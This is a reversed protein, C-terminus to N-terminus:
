QNLERRPSKKKTNKNRRNKSQLPTTNTHARALRKQHTRRTTHGKAFPANAMLVIGTTDLKMFRTPDLKEFGFREFDGAYLANVLAIAKPSYRDIYSKRNRQVDATDFRIKDSGRYHRRPRHSHPFAFRDFLTTLDRGLEEFRLVHDVNKKPERKNGVGQEDTRYVFYHQPILHINHKTIADNTIDYREVIDCFMHFLEKARAVGDTKSPAVYAPYKHVWFRQANSQRHAVMKSYATKSPLDGFASYFRNYPNRVVCFSVCEEYLKPSVYDYLVGQHLHTADICAKHDQGWFGISLLNDKWSANNLMHFLWEGATKPIHVFAYRYELSIFM